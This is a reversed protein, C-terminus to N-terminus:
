LGNFLLNILVVYESMTSHVRIVMTHVDWQQAEKEGVCLSERVAEPSLLM